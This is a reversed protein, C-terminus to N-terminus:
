RIVKVKETSKIYPPIEECRAIVYVRDFPKIAPLYSHYTRSIVSNILVEAHDKENIDPIKDINKFYYGITDGEIMLDRELELVDSDSLIACDVVKINKKLGIFVPEYDSDRSEILLLTEDMPNSLDVYSRVDEFHPGFVMEDTIDYDPDLISM